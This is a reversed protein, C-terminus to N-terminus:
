LTPRDMIQQKNSKDTFCSVRLRSAARSSDLPLVIAADAADSINVNYKKTANGSIRPTPSM